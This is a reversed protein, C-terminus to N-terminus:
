RIGKILVRGHVKGVVSLQIIGTFDACENKGGKGKYLPVVCASACEVAVM